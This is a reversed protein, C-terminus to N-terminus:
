AYEYRMTAPDIRIDSPENCPDDDIDAMISLLQNVKDSLEPALNLTLLRILKDTQKGIDRGDNEMKSLTTKDLHLLAAFEKSSKGVYTRLFRVEDGGLKCPQCVVALALTDMLENMHPIVPETTECEACKIIEVNGLILPLGMDDFRYDGRTVTAPHGCNSCPEAELLMKKMLREM